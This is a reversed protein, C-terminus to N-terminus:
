YNDVLHMNERKQIPLINAKALESPYIGNDFITNFLKTMFLIVDNGGAKPMEIHAHTHTILVVLKEPSLIQLLKKFRM